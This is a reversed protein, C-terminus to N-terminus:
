DVLQHQEKTFAPSCSIFLHLDGEWYYKEGADLLHEKGEVV